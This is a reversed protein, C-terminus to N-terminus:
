AAKDSQLLPVHNPRQDGSALLLAAQERLYEAVDHQALAEILRCHPPTLTITTSM